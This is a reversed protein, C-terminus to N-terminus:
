GRLEDGSSPTTPTAPEPTPSALEKPAPKQKEEEQEENKAMQLTKELQEEDLVIKEDKEQNESLDQLVKTIEKGDESE